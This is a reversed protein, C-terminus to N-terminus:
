GKHLTKEIATLMGRLINMENEDLQAKAFMRRMRRIVNRPNGQEIFNVRVMVRQLHAVLGEMEAVTVPRDEAHYSFDNITSQAALYLEYTIVQVAAGINLSCYAQNSPIRVMYHCRELEENTLGADERGFIIAIPYKPAFQAALEACGRPTVQPWALSRQRATTAFVWQCDGIAQDLTTCVVARDLVDDAGSARATADPHPFYKPEVLYLQDMAMNKMARAVAGINGPHSTNVLVIRINALM